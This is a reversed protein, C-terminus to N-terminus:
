EESTGIDDMPNTVVSQQTMPQPVAPLSKPATQPKIPKFTMFGAVIALLLALVILIQNIGFSSAEDGSSVDNNVIVKCGDSDVQDGVATVPCLDDANLVGDSDSDAQLASCGDGDVITSLPTRECLDVENLVGDADDDIDEVGDVCGDGDADDSSMVAGMRGRPCLDYVDEFGDNDDNTDEEDDHCGDQDWDLTRDSSNWGIVGKPCEDIPTSGMMDLTGDNDDDFDNM